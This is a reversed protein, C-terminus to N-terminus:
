LSNANHEALERYFDDASIENYYIRRFGTFGRFPRPPYTPFASHYGWDRVPASYRPAGWVVPKDHSMTAFLNIMSGRITLHQRPNGVDWHELLRPFNQVGGSYRNGQTRFIGTVLAASVTTHTARRHNNMNLSRSRANDWNASLITIADAVLSVPREAREDLLNHNTPHFEEPNSGETSTGRHITNNKASDLVPLGTDPNLRPPANFHGTVYLAANTAFTLGPTPTDPQFMGTVPDRYGYRGTPVVEANEIQVAWKRHAPRTFDPNPSALPQEPMAFYVGEFNLGPLSNPLDDSIHHGRAFEGFRGMNFRLLSIEGEPNAEKQNNNGSREAMRYDFLGSRTTEWKRMREGSDNLVYGEDDLTYPEDPDAPMDALRLWDPEYQEVVLFESPRPFGAPLPRMLPTARPNGADDFYDIRHTDTFEFERVFNGSADTVLRGTSDRKLGFFEVIPQGDASLIPTGTVPDIRPEIILDSAVSWKEQETRDLLQRLADRDDEAYVNASILQDLLAERQAFSSPPSILRHLLNGSDGMAAEAFAMLEDFGAPLLPSVGHEQTMLGGKFVQSALTRFNANEEDLRSDLDLTFSEGSDPDIFNLRLSQLYDQNVLTKTADPAISFDRMFILHPRHQTNNHMQGLYVNGATTVQEHFYLRGAPDANLWINQNSHIPGGSIHLPAGPFLEMDEHYFLAYSYLSRDIVQFTQRSYVTREGMQRSFGTAKAYVVVERLRADIDTADSPLLAEPSIRVLHDIGTSAPRIFAAVGTDFRRPNQLFLAPDFIMRSLGEAYDPTPQGLASLVGAPQTREDDAFVLMRLRSQPNGQVYRIFQPHFGLPQGAARHPNFLDISPFPNREFTMQVQAMGHNLVTQAGYRAENYLFDSHALRSATTSLRMISAIVLAFIASVLVVTLLIGGRRSHFHYHSHLFLAPSKM